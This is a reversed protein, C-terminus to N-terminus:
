TIKPTFPLFAMFRARKIAETLHRQHSACVGTREASQIRGRESLFKLLTEKEKYDPEIDEKCFLCNKGRGIKKIKIRPRPM